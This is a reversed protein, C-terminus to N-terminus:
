AHRQCKISTLRFIGPPTSTNLATCRWSLQRLPHARQVLQLAFTLLGLLCPLWLNPELISSSFNPYSTAHQPKNKTAGPHELEQFYFLISVNWESCDALFSPDSKCLSVPKLFSWHDKFKSLITSIEDAVDIRTKIYQVLNRPPSSLFSRHFCLSPQLLQQPLSVYSLAINRNKMKNYIQKNCQEKYISTYNNLITYIYIHIDENM